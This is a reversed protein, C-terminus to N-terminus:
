RPAKPMKESLGKLLASLAQEDRLAMSAVALMVSKSALMDVADHAERFSRKVAATAEDVKEQKTM